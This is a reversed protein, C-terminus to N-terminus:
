RGGRGSPRRDLVFLGLYSLLYLVRSFIATDATRNRGEAGCWGVPDCGCGAARAPSEMPEGAIYTSLVERRRLDVVVGADGLEQSTPSTGRWGPRGDVSGAGDLGDLLYERAVM